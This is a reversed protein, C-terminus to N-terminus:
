PRASQFADVLRSSQFLIAEDIRRKEEPSQAAKRRKHLDSIRRQFSRGARAM